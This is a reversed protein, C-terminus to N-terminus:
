DRMMGAGAPSLPWTLSRPPVLTGEGEPLPNPYPCNWFGRVPKADRV